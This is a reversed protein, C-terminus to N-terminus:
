CTDALPPGRRGVGRRFGRRFARREAADGRCERKPKNRLVARSVEFAGLISASLEGTSQKYQRDKIANLGSRAIKGFTGTELFNLCGYLKAATGAYLKNRATAEDMIGEVKDVLEQKVWFDVAGQRARGMDHTLGLFNARVALKQRKEDAFPTGLLGAFKNVQAQTKKALSKFEQLTADDFYMSFLVGLLRRILAQVLFPYRNFATVAAPLGFLMGNYIFFLPAGTEPDRIMVM